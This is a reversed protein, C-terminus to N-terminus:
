SSRMTQEKGDRSRIQRNLAGCLQIVEALERPLNNWMTNGRANEAMSILELNEITCHTRDRDRFVVIHKPPIPGNHQEWIYRNLMPWVKPNGYGAAEKGHVADRVKIRLYGDSDPLITGIPVWNKAAAGSRQGPKFQTEKMRGPGYGPRRLGKNAPVGGSKFQTAVLFARAKKVGLLAAMRYVGSIGRQLAKAVEKTSRM